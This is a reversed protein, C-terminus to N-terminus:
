DKKLRRYALPTYGTERKFLRCFYSADLVGLQDSVDAITLQTFQLMRKAELIRRKTLLKQPSMGIIERCKRTLSVTSTNLMEAYQSISWNAQYNDEILNCFDRLLADNNSMLQMPDSKVHSSAHRAFSLLLLELSLEMSRHRLPDIKQSNLKINENALFMAHFEPDGKKVLWIRQQLADGDALSQLIKSMVPLRVSVVTGTALSPYQFAHVFLPPISVFVPGTTLHEDDGLRMLIQPNHLYFIQWLTDHKHPQISWNHQRSRERLHEFHVVDDHHEELYEGYLAYTPILTKMM